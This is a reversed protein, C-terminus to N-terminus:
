QECLCGRVKKSLVEISFPKQIFDRGGGDLIRRVVAQSSFGSVLLVRVDPEAQQLRLFVEEGSLGPMLLDLIVLHFRGQAEAFKDLAELGSAATEVEYGLHSLSLALVNRV